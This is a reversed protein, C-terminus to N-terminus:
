LFIYLVYASWPKRTYSNFRRFEFIWKRRVNKQAISLASVGYVLSVIFSAQCSSTLSHLPRLGTWGVYPGSARARIARYRSMNKVSFSSKFGRISLDPVTVPTRARLAGSRLRHLKCNGTCGDHLSTSAIIAHL